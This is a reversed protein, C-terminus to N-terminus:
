TIAGQNYGNYSLIAVIPNCGAALEDFKLERGIVTSVLPRQPYDLTASTSDFRSQFNTSAWGIAQKCMASNHVAFGDGAIFSHTDAATTLDAILTSEVPSLAAVTVYHFRAHACMAVRTVGAVLGEVAKWGADTWFLHDYTAKIASGSATRIEFMRKETVAVHHHVVDTASLEMSGPSFTLVRDGVRVDRIRKRAGDAMWVAVDAHLCQYTNRCVYGGM